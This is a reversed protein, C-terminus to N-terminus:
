TVCSRKPVPAKPRFTATEGAQKKRTPAADVAVPDAKCNSLCREGAYQYFPIAGSGDDAPAGPTEIKRVGESSYIKLEGAPAPGSQLIIAMAVSLMCLRHM